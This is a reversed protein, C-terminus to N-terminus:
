FSGLIGKEGNLFTVTHAYTYVLCKVVGYMKKINRTKLGILLRYKLYYM